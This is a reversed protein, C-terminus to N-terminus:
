PKVYLGNLNIIGFIADLVSNGVRPGALQVAHDYRYPIMPVLQMLKRDLAAWAKGAAIPDPIKLIRDIEKDIAANKFHGFNTGQEQVRSSDLLPLYVTSGSPWDWGWGGQYLDLKADLKGIEDYYNKDSLPKTTVTFGAETLAQAIVVAAREQDDTRRYAYVIKQGLKGAAELTAKARAPDGEPAVQYLDSPEHGVLTRGGITTALEGIIPGGGIQRVQQKPFAFLLAKRVEVDTIRLNNIAFYFTYPTAGTVMRARLDPNGTVEPLLENAINDLLPVAAADAGNGAIIRQYQALRQDGWLFEYSDPYQYRVPDSEPRWEPNRTLILSKDVQRSKIKYPGSAFPRNDYKGRTDKSKKVPGTSVMSLAFPVDAQAKPFRFVVTRENPTTIAKLSQGGYPGAYVKRFDLSGALWEQLYTPGEAYDAVFTREIGYKVDASTIPSGDEWTVGDRLTYTWTKGGDKTVGTNTALDGVLEVKGDVQRYNTLQRLMLSAVMGSTNIYIRAPDLHALDSSDLVRITGGPVADPVAPAPGVAADDVGFAVAGAATDVETPSQPQDGDGGGGCGSLVLALACTAAFAARPQTAM